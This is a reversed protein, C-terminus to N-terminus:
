REMWENCYDKAIEGLRLYKEGHRELVEVIAQGTINVFHQLAAAFINKPIALEKRVQDASLGLDADKVRLHFVCLRNFIRCRADLLKDIGRPTAMREITYGRSTFAYRFIRNFVTFQPTLSRFLSATFVRGLFLSALFSPVALQLM